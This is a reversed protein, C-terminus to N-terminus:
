DHRAYSGLSILNNVKPNLGSTFVGSVIKLHVGPFERRLQQAIKLAPDHPDEAGLVLEFEPYDQACLSALNDYLGDDIGKLPKLVSIGPTPGTYDRRRSVRLVSLDTVLTFLLSVGAAIASAFLVADM